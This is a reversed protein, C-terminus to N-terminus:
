AGGVRRIVEHDVSAAFVNGPEFLAEVLSRERGELCHIEVRALWGVIGSLRVIVGRLYDDRLRDFSYGDVGALQLLDHYERLLELEHERRDEITLSEALFGAVDLLAPGRAVSQWDIIYAIPGGPSPMFMVNDLHLDGHVLTLPASALDDLIRPLHEGLGALLAVVEPSLRERYRDIVTVSQQRYREVREPITAPWDGLWAMADLEPDGWWRSQLEVLGHLVSRVGSVSCGDLADGPWADLLDELLLVVEGAEVDAHGFYCDPIQSFLQGSTRYFHVERASREAFQRALEPSTAMRERYSTGGAREALPFKAVLSEPADMVVQSYRPTLRTVVGTFGRDEGIVQQEVGAINGTSPVGAESLVRALWSATVDGPRGPAPDAASM